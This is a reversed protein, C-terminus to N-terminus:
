VTNALVATEEASVTMDLEKNISRTESKIKGRFAPDDNIRLEGTVVATKNDTRVDANVNLNARENANNISTRLILPEDMGDIRITITREGYFGEDYLCEVSGDANISVSDMGLVDSEKPTYSKGDVTLTVHAKFHETKSGYYRVYPYATWLGFALLGIILLAILIGIGSKKKAKM